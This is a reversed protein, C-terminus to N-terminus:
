ESLEQYEKISKEVTAEDLYTITSIEKIAFKQKFLRYAVHEMREGIEILNKDFDYFRIVQQKWPQEIIEHIFELQLEKIKDVIRPLDDHEFYLEFNNSKKIIPNNNILTLFHKKEHIAIGSEYSINEGYDFKVIQNLVNEYLLRSKKIDEVVVLSAIFKM